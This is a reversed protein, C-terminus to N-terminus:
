EADLQALAADCRAEAKAFFRRKRQEEEEEEEDGEEEPGGADSLLLTQQEGGSSGGGGGGSDVVVFAYWLPTLVTTAAHWLAHADLVGYAGDGWVAGLAPLPAATAAAGPGLGPGLGGAAARLARLMGQVPPTRRLDPFDFLELLFAASLGVVFSMLLRGGARPPPRPQRHDLSCPEASESAGGGGGGGSSHLCGRCWPWALWGLWLVATAVACTVNFMM